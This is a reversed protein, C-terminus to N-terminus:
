SADQALIVFLQTGVYTSGDDLLTTTQNLAEPRSLSAGPATIEQDQLAARVLHQFGRVTLKTTSQACVHIAVEHRELRTFKSGLQTVTDDGLLVFPYEVQDQGDIPTESAVQPLGDVASLADFIAIQVAGALDTM